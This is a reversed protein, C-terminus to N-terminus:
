SIGNIKEELFQFAIDSNFIAGDLYYVLNNREYTIVQKYDVPRPIPNSIGSLFKYGADIQIGNKATLKICLGIDAPIFVTDDYETGNYAKDFAEAVDTRLANFEEGFESIVCLKPKLTEVLKAIGLRGLHNKYHCESEDKDDLIGRERPKFGGINAVLIIEKSAYKAALKNYAEQVVEDKYSTDGTYILAYKDYEFCIGMATYDSVVDDHDARIAFVKVDKGDIAKEWTIFPNDCYDNCVTVVKYDTKRHLNFFGSYKQITGATVYVNLQQGYDKKLKEVIQKADDYKKGTRDDRTAEYGYSLAKEIDKWIPWNMVDPDKKIDDWEFDFNKNYSRLVTLLSDIDNTHDNHAHTVIIDKIQKFILQRNDARFNDIFNFGPDIVVGKEGFQVFYGGGVSKPGGGIPTFSNWKRLVSFTFDDVSVLPQDFKYFGERKVKGEKEYVIEELAMTNKILKKIPTDGTDIVTIDKLIEISAILNRTAKELKKPIGCGAVESLVQNCDKIAEDFQGDAFYYQARSYYTEIYSPDCGIAKDYDAKAKLPEHLNYYAEGRGFYGYADKENIGLALNYWGLSTHFEGNHRYRHGILTYIKENDSDIELADYLGRFAKEYEQMMGYLISRACLSEVLFLQLSQTKYKVFKEMSIKVARDYNSFSEQLWTEEPEDIYFYMYYYTIGLWSCAHYYSPAQALVAGICELAKKFNKQFFYLIGQCLEKLKEDSAIGKSDLCEQAKEYNGQKCLLKIYVIFCETHVNGDEIWKQCEKIANDYDYIREYLRALKLSTEVDSQEEIKELCKQIQVSVTETKKVFTATTKTDSMM